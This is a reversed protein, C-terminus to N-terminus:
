QILRFFLAVLFRGIDRVRCQQLCNLSKSVLSPTGPVGYRDRLHFARPVETGVVPFTRRTRDYGTIGSLSLLRDFDKEDWSGFWRVAAHLDSTFDGEVLTAIDWLEERDAKIYRSFGKSGNLAGAKSVQCWHYSLPFRSPRESVTAKGESVAPNRLFCTALSRTHL